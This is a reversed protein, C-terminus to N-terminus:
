KDDAHELLNKKIMRSRIKYVTQTKMELEKVIQMPMVGELLMRETLFRNHDHLSITFDFGDYMRMFKDLQEENEFFDRLYDYDNYIKRMIRGYLGM